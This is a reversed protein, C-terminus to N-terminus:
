RSVTRLTLDAFVSFLAAEHDSSRRAPLPDVRHRDSPACNSSAATLSAVCGGPAGRREVDVAEPAVGAVGHAGEDAADGRDRGGGIGGGEEGGV